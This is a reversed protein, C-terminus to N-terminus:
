IGIMQVLKGWSFTWIFPVFEVVLNLTIIDTVAFCTSVITQSACRLFVKQWALQAAGGSSM